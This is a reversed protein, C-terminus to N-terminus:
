RFILFCIFFSSILTSAIINMSMASKHTARREDRFVGVAWFVFYIMSPLQVAVFISAWFFGEARYLWFFIGAMAVSLFSASLIFTGRVGLLRSITMDGRLADEEHQYVQTLPYIGLIFATVLFSVRYTAADLSFFGRGGLVAAMALFTFIGQGLGTWIWGVIPLRKIRIRDWSYLKSGLGYIFALLAFEPTILYAWVIALLDFLLSVILLSINVPPPNALGGIPGEDRDFFSNFGNSAPYLLIHFIIFVPLIRSNIYQIPILAMFFIPLLFISFPIRLHLLTSHWKENM